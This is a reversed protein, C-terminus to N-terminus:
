NWWFPAQRTNQKAVHVQQGMRQQQKVHSQGVVAAGGSRSKSTAANWMMQTVRTSSLAPGEAGKSVDLSCHADNTDSKVHQAISTKFKEMMAQAKEEETDLSKVNDAICVKVRKTGNDCSCKQSFTCQYFVRGGHSPVFFDQVEMM